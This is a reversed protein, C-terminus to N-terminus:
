MITPFIALIRSQDPSEWWFVRYPFVNTDNWGIKQTIFADIGADQYFEPMNWNYGFSDPNWGIKADVGLNKQFYNQSYLLQHMWSEGSPLNCDPEIWMGGVVEWRGDKVRQKIGNFVDPYNEEMWNYYAAASQAYTLDPRADMMHLVSAFTNRCVQITEIYRWLWAADIHANSVLYLTFQKVFESIPQLQPRVENVSAVFKTENGSKLAEVDVEGALKQLLDNLRVKEDHNMKSKDIHPDVKLRANTQYTDFSLTKQGVRFSLALDRMMDPLESIIDSRLEARLLHIMAGGNVAKIAVVFKMGPKADNSLLFEKGYAFYGKDEGNIWMYGYNDLTVLLSIKGQMPKGFISDPLMVVKRIWCSDLDIENGLKENDWKSDDFDLSTPYGNFVTTSLDPSVKWNDIFTTSVLSDLESTIKDVNTNTQADTLSFPAVILLVVFLYTLTKM